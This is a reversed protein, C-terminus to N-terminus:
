IEKLDDEIKRKEEDTLPTLSDANLHPARAKMSRYLLLVAILILIGPMGWLLLNFGQPKPSRLIWEGYRDEFYALIEGQSKGEQLLERIKMKMNVSLGAESEKVSQAQCTPCRLQDAIKRVQNDLEDALSFQSLSVLIVITLITKFSAIM